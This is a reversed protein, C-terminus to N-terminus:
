EKKRPRRSVKALGVICRWRKAKRDLVYVVEDIASGEPARIVIRTLNGDAGRERRIELKVPGRIEAPSWAGACDSNEGPM